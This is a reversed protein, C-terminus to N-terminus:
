LTTKKTKCRQAKFCKVKVRKMAYRLHVNRNVKWFRQSTESSCRHQFPAKLNPTKKKLSESVSVNRMTMKFSPLNALKKKEKYFNEFFLLWLMMQIWDGDPRTSDNQDLTQRSAKIGENKGQNKKEKWTIRGVDWSFISNIVPKYNYGALSVASLCRNIM